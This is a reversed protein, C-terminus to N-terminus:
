YLLYQKRKQMFRQLAQQWDEDIRQPDRGSELDHLVERNALLTAIKDLHYQDPYLKHLVTAIELGLEPTDLVNRNTVILEIGHCLQKAYPYPEAPTFNVPVFRIGPLFRANLAHALVRGDIWPAGVYEFPTDTGRGVSVNTTEILGVGPYLIAEALSRLNPSPNVWTLSTADFWDGRQWGQMAVVTLPAHLAYEGNLYRALEGLTLGHRVPIPAVDVYSDANADSVSGQVFSGGLPNPRDLIVVETGTQGAAELLYRLASEYTYFRVGADQLDVLVADLGRLTDLSPHRQDRDGGYLSIVSLGTGPDASNAINTQDLVGSIGHEPSFLLKLQLGPVAQVADKVLVDITRRGQADLGTQNTLLGINLTGRHKSALQALEAFHDSELVDIGTLVALRDLLNQAFIAVDGASSFLGAHGAVGGMRRATPDHVVARLMVGNDFQTPAVRDRWSEPPLFRTDKLGLPKAIYQAEYQDLTLGSLKEVLAGLIIFNIDSYRFEVGPPTIPTCSFARRLGEEKGTWPDTLSLDPPLGSYHTLLQRITIDEKGNVGFEPLYKAVPDNLLFRGQEYLQMVATTTALVKTLSAVDFVTDQSMTEHQPVLSREGYAKRFVVHGHHGVIVVAGPFKKASIADTVIRDVSSFDAKQKAESHASPAVLVLLLSAFPRILRGCRIM